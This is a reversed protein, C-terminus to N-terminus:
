TVIDRTATVGFTMTKIEIQDIYKYNQNL